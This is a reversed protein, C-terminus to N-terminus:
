RHGRYQPLLGKVASGKTGPLSDGREQGQAEQLQPENNRQKQSNLEAMTQAVTQWLTQNQFDQIAGRLLRCWMKERFGSHIPRQFSTGFNTKMKKSMPQTHNNIRELPYTQEM